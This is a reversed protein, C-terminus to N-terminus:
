SQVLKPKMAQKIKVGAEVTAAQLLEENAALIMLGYITQVRLTDASIERGDESAESFMAEVSGDERIVLAVDGPGVPQTSTTFGNFKLDM